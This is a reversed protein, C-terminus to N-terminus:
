DATKPTKSASRSGPTVATAPKWTPSIPITPTASSRRTATATSTSSNFQAGPHPEEKRVILRTGAPWGSLDVQETLEAVWAAERVQGTQDIAESWHRPRLALIAVRLDESLPFGISFEVGRQRLANVFAHSCGASDSRALMAQGGRLDVARTAVPLQALAADLLAVHDAATGPNANGPRLLGALAEGTGDLFCLLPSFGFGHKYTPAAPSTRPDRYFTEAQAEM